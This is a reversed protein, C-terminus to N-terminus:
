PNIESEWIVRIRQLKREVTRERRGLVAAIDQNSRGEMKLRAVVTLLEAEADLRAFLREILERFMLVVDPPPEPAVAELPGHGNSGAPEPLPQCGPERRWLDVAKKKVLDALVCWLDDRDRLRPFRGRLAATCFAVFAEHAVEQPNALGRPANHLQSRARREMDAQYRQWLKPVADPDGHQLDRVWDSVSSDSPPM